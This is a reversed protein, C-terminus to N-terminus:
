LLSFKQWMFGPLMNLFISGLNDKGCDGSNSVEGSEGSKEVVSQAYESVETNTFSQKAEMYQTAAYCSNQPSPCFGNGLQSAVEITLQGLGGKYQNSAFKVPELLSSPHCKESEQVYLGNTTITEPISVQKQSVEVIQDLVLSSAAFEFKEKNVDFGDDSPNCRGKQMHANSLQYSLKSNVLSDMQINQCLFQNVLSTAPSVIECAFCVCLCLLLLIMFFGGKRM